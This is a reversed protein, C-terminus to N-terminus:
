FFLLLCVAYAGGPFSANRGWAVGVALSTIAPNAIEKKLEALIVGLDNYCVSVGRMERDTLSQPDIPNNALYQQASVRALLRADLQVLPSFGFKEKYWRCLENEIEVMVAKPAPCPFLAAFEQTIYYDDGSRYVGIGAQLMRADLINVRHRFSAMLAEHIFRAFPTRGHAVNEASVLFCLDNQQMKREAGPWGPFDHSMKGEAAMKASHGRAIEQLVSHHRLLPRGLKVRDANILDLLEAEIRDPSPAIFRKVAGSVPAALLLAAALALILRKM